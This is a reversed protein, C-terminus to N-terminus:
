KAREAELQKAALMMRQVIRWLLSLEIDDLSCPPAATNIITSHCRQLWQNLHPVLFSDDYHQTNRLLM